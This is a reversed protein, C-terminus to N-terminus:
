HKKKDHLEKPILANKRSVNKKEYNTNQKATEKEKKKRKRTESRFAELFWRPSPLLLWLSASIQL